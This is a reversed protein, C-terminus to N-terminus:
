FIPLSWQLDRQVSLAISPSDEAEMGRMASALSFHSWEEDPKRTAASRGKMELFEVFDLVERLTDEPLIEIHQVIAQAITM